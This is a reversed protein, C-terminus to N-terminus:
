SNIVSFVTFKKKKSLFIKTIVWVSYASLLYSTALIIFLRELLCQSLLCFHQYGTNRTKWRYKWCNREVPNNVKEKM